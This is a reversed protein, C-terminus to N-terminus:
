GKKGISQLCAQFRPDRRLNDLDRDKEMHGRDDYGLRIAKELAAFAKEQRELLAYSCSLNYHVVPDTPLLSVLELDVQLGAEYRGARTLLDGLPLLVELDGPRRRAAEELLELVFRDGLDELGRRLEEDLDM